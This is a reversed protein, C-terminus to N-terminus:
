GGGDVGKEGWREVAVAGQQMRGDAESLVVVEGEGRFESQGAGLM